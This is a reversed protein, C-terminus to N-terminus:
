AFSHTTSATEEPFAEPVEVWEGSIERIEGRHRSVLDKVFKWNDAAPLAALPRGGEDWYLVLAM